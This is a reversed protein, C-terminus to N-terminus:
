DEDSSLLELEEDNADFLSEDIDVTEEGKNSLIGEEDPLENALISLDSNFLSSDKMFQQKGTLKGALAAEKAKQQADRLERIEEMFKKNWERFSKVTVPTGEVILKEEEEAARLKAEFEDEKRKKLEKTLQGIIEQLGCILTYSMTMGINEEAIVKLDDVIKGIREEDFLGDLNSIEIEPLADPYEAPFKIIMVTDFPDVAEHADVIGEGHSHLTFKIAINPYKSCLVEMEDQYIAELAEIELEQSSLHYEAQEDVM